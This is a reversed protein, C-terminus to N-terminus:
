GMTYGSASGELQTQMAFCLSAIFNEKSDDKYTGQDHFKNSLDLQSFCTHAVPLPSKEGPQTNMKIVGACVKVGTVYKLFNKVKEEDKESLLWEKLWKVKQRLVDNEVVGNKYQIGAVITERDLKGQIKEAAKDDTTFTTWYEESHVRTEFLRDAMGKAIAHLAPLYGFYKEHVYGALFKKATEVTIHDESIGSKNIKNVVEATEDQSPDKKQLYKRFDEDTVDAPEVEEARGADVDQQTAKHILIDGKNAILTKLVNQWCPAEWDPDKKRIETYDIQQLATFLDQHFIQGSVCKRTGTSNYCYMQMYGTNRYQELETQSLGKDPEAAKPMPLGKWNPDCKLQCASDKLLGAFILGVFERSPGGADIGPSEDLNWELFKVHFVTDKHPRESLCEVTKKLHHIAMEEVGGKVVQISVARAYKMNEYLSTKQLAARYLIRALAKDQPLIEPKTMSQRNVLVSTLAGEENIKLDLRDLRIFKNWMEQSQICIYGDKSKWIMHGEFSFDQGPQLTGLRNNLCILRNKDFILPKSEADALKCARDYSFTNCTKVMASIWEENEQDMEIQEDNGRSCVWKGGNKFFKYKVGAGNRHGHENCLLITEHEDMVFSNTKEGLTCLLRSAARETPPDTCGDLRHGTKLFGRLFDLQQEINPRGTLPRKEAPGSELIGEPTKPHLLQMFEGAKTVVDKHGSGSFDEGNWKFVLDKGEGCSIFVNKDNAHITYEIKGLTLNFTDQLSFHKQLWNRIHTWKEPDPNVVAVEEEEEKDVQIEKFGGDAKSLEVEKPKVIPDPLKLLNKFSIDQTCKSQIQKWFLVLIVSNYMHSVARHVRKVLNRITFKSLDQGYSETRVAHFVYSIKDNEDQLRACKAKHPHVDGVWQDLRTLNLSVSFLSDGSM